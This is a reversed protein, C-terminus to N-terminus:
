FWLLFRGAGKKKKRKEKRVYMFERRKGNVRSNKNLDGAIRLRAM